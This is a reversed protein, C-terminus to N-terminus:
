SLRIHIFVGGCKGAAICFFICKERKESVLQGPTVLSGSKLAWNGRHSGWLREVRRGTVSLAWPWSRKWTIFFVIFSFMQWWGLPLKWKEERTGNAKYGRKKKMRKTKNRPLIFYRRYSYYLIVLTGFTGEELWPHSDSLAWSSVAFSIKWRPPWARRYCKEAWKQVCKAWSSFRAEVLAELTYKPGHFRWSM